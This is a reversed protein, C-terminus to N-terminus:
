FKLNLNFGMATKNHQQFLMPSFGVPAGKLQNYRTMMKKQLAVSGSSIVSGILEVGLGVIAVPLGAGGEGYASTQFSYIGLGIGTITLGTYIFTSSIARKTSLTKLNANIEADNPEALVTKLEKWTFTKMERGKYTTKPFPSKLDFYGSTSSTTTSSKIEERTMKEIQDYRYVFTNGDKTLVKISDPVYQQIIECKITSGNKLQIVDSFTQAKSFISLSLILIFTLLNKM